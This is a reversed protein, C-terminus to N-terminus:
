DANPWSKDEFKVRWRTPTNVVPTNIPPGNKYALAQYTVNSGIPAWTKDWEMTEAHGDIFAYNALKIGHRNWAVNGREAKTVRWAFGSSPYFTGVQHNQNHFGFGAFVASSEALMIADSSKKMRSLNIAEPDREGWGGFIVDYGIAANSVNYRYSSPIKKADPFNPNPEAAWPRGDGRPLGVRNFPDEPCLFVETTLKSSRLLVQDWGSWEAKWAWEFGAMTPPVPPLPDPAYYLNGQHRPFWGKNAAAYTHMSQMLQRMNSLCQVTKAHKRAKQLAPMLISILLAIIGIVVLLEVLTFGQSRRRPQGIRSM